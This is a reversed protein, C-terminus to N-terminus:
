IEDAGRQNLELRCRPQRVTSQRLDSHVGRQGHDFALLRPAFGLAGKYDLHSASMARGHGDKTPKSTAVAAIAADQGRCRCNTAPRASKCNLDLCQTPEPAPSRLNDTDFPHVDPLSPFRNDSVYTLLLAFGGKAHCIIM